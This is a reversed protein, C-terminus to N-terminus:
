GPLQVELVEGLLVLHVDSFFKPICFFADCVIRKSVKLCITSSLVLTPCDLHFREQCVAPFLEFHNPISDGAGVIEGLSIKGFNRNFFLLIEPFLYGHKREAL